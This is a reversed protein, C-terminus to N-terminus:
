SPHASVLTRTVQSSFKFVGYTGSQSSDQHLDVEAAPDFWDHEVGTSTLSGSTSINTTVVYATVPAGDTTTSQTGTIAGSVTLDFQGGCTSSGSFQHGVAPPWAIVQVPQAFTCSVTFSAMRIVESLVSIGSPAISFTTDTPPQSPDIYSHWVQQWSGAGKATPPDVVVLGQAPDNQSSGAASFSGSQNYRYTGPAAPQPGRAGNGNPSSSSQSSASPKQTSGSSGSGPAGGAVLSTTTSSTSTTVSTGGRHHGAPFPGVRAGCGAAVLVVTAVALARRRGGVSIRM